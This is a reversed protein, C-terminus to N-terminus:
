AQKDGHSFGCGGSFDERGAARITEVGESGILLAIVLAAASDVWWLSPTLGYFASGALLVQPCNSVLWLTFDCRM